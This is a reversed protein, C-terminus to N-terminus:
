QNSNKAMVGGWLCSLCCVDTWDENDTTDLSCQNLMMFVFEWQWSKRPNEVIGLQRTEAGEKAEHTIKLAEEVLATSEDQELLLGRETTSLPQNAWVGYSSNSPELRAKGWLDEASRLTHPHLKM